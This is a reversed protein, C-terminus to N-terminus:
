TAGDIKGLMHMWFILKGSSEAQAEAKKLNNQWDIQTALQHVRVDCIEGTLVQKAAWVGPTAITVALLLASLQAASSRFNM